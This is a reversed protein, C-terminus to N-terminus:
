HPQVQGVHVTTFKDAVDIQVTTFKYRWCAHMRAAITSRLQWTHQTCKGMLSVTWSMNLLSHCNAPAPSWYLHSLSFAWRTRCVFHAVHCTETCRVRRALTSNYLRLTQHDSKGPALCISCYRAASFCNTSTLVARWQATPIRSYAHKRATADCNRTAGAPTFNAHPCPLYAVVFRSTPAIANWKETKFSRNGLTIRLDGQGCPVTPAQCALLQCTAGLCRALIISHQANYMGQMNQCCVQWRM